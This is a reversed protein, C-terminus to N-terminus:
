PLWGWRALATLVLAGLAGAALDDALVGTAGPLSELKRVPYPKIVDMVRFLLFGAVLATLSPSGPQLFALPLLTVMQGAVEDLVIPSPDHESFHPLAGGIVPGSLSAILLTATALGWAGVHPTLLSDLLVYLGVGLASGYTGPM